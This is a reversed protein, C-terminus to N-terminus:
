EDKSKVKQIQNVNPVVRKFCKGKIHIEEDKLQICDLSNIVYKFHKSKLFEEFLENYLYTNVINTLGESNHLLEELSCYNTDRFDSEENYTIDDAKIEELASNYPDILLNYFSSKNMTIRYDLVQNHKFFRGFNLGGNYSVMSFDTLTNNVYIEM